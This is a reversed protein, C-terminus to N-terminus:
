RGLKPLSHKVQIRQSDKRDVWGFRALYIVLRRGGLTCGNLSDIAKLAPKRERFRVFGFCSEKGRRSPAHILADVMSGYHIFHEEAIGCQFKAPLCVSFCQYLIKGIGM